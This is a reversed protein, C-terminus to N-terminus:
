FTVFGSEKLAGSGTKTLIAKKSSSLKTFIIPTIISPVRDKIKDLDVKLLLQGQHVTEGKKVYSSFGDGKLKVTDIGFHILVEDGECNKIGIAHNTPFLSAVIGDIPAIVIGSTPRIAFGEGMIKQSFVKDPVETLPIVEGELPLTFFHNKISSNAPTQAKITLEDHKMFEDMDTKINESATGFIAQINEGIVLVDTAGLKKIEAVNCLSPSHLAIRIRTICADLSKINKKGGLAQILKIILESRNSQTTNATLEIEERGPTKYNLKLILTKFVIYYIIGTIPGLILVLWPKTDLKFYLLYDIFGHSFTYGLKANLLNIILFCSGALFAHIVYLLPAVFLFSFEIPETIGTLFSTLSASIMVGGIIKRNEPKATQWIALAAAPLGFMKFLFGGGMFGATPDGAFFRTMDGHFVKGAADTFTGIEFYFPFNWIHHLGFPILLREVLGYLFVMLSANETIAYQSFHNIGNQIPPWTFSLILGVSIAAFATVIPVFRKGAFFGLYPPLSIKYYKNFLKGTILGIIIGGFVGTNISDIGMFSETKLGLLKAMVGLTALMVAYGVTAALSAVGDNETLGLAVGIAFILPLLGFIAGGSNAMTASIIEPIFTFKASGVGLLIGAVPLVAVPLMLSKGIKQLVGFIVKSM